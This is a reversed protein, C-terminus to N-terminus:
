TGRLGAQGVQETDGTAWRLSQGLEEAVVKVVSCTSGDEATWTGGQDACSCPGRIGATGSRVFSSGQENRAM